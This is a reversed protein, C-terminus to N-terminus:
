GSVVDTEEAPGLLIAESEAQLLMQRKRQVLLIAEPEAQLLM